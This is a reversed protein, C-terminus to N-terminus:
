PQVLTPIEVGNITSKAYDFTESNSSHTVTVDVDEDGQKVTVTYTHDQNNYIITNLVDDSAAYNYSLILSDQMSKWVDAGWNISEGSPKTPLTFTTIGTGEATTLTISGSVDKGDKDTIIITDGDATDYLGDGDIDRFTVTYDTVTGLNDTDIYRVRRVTVNSTGGSNNITVGTDSKVTYGRNANQTLTLTTNEATSVTLDNESRNLKVVTGLDPALTFSVFKGNVADGNVITPYTTGNMLGVGLAYNESVSNETYIDKIEVRDIPQLADQLSAGIDLYLLCAGTKGSVSGLAYEGKNVPIEFYYAEGRLDTAYAITGADDKPTGDAALSAHTDAIIGEPATLWSTDFVMPADVTGLLAILSEDETSYDPKGNEAQYKYIYKETTTISSKNEYIMSIERIETIKAQDDPDRTIHHLAFFSNTGPYYTGAFFNIYGDQKLNFDICDGPVQYNNITAGNIKAEPITVLSDESIIGNIFQLAYLREAELFENYVDVAGKQDGTGAYKKLTTGLSNAPIETSNTKVKEFATGNWVYVNDKDAINQTYLESVWVDFDRDPSPPNGEKIQNYMGGTIYGTNNNAPQYKNTLDEQLPIYAADNKNAVGYEYNSFKSANTTDFTMDPVDSVDTKSWALSEDGETSPTVPTVTAADSPSTSIGWRGNVYALYGSVTTVDAHLALTQNVTDYKWFLYGYAQTNISPQNPEFAYTSVSGIKTHLVSIGYAAIQPDSHPTLYWVSDTPNNSNAVSYFGSYLESGVALYDKGSHIQYYATTDAEERLSWKNEILKLYYDKSESSYCLGKEDVYSWGTTNNSYSFSISTGSVNVYLKIGGTLIFLSGSEIVWVTATDPDTGLGISPSGGGIDVNLYQGGYMIKHGSTTGSPTCVVESVMAGGSLMTFYELFRNGDSYILSYKDKNGITDSFMYGTGITDREVACYSKGDASMVKVAKHAYDSMGTSNSDRVNSINEFLKDMAISGGWNTDIGGGSSNIDETETVTPSYLDLETVNLSSEYDEECHGVLTHDSINETFSTASANNKTKLTCDNVLINQLTANVYGAAFGITTANSSNELTYGTIGTNIVKIDKKYVTNANTKETSSDETTPPTDDSITVGTLGALEDGYDGIVGFFGMVAGAENPAGGYESLLDDVAFKSSTPRKDLLSKANATTLNSIVCGNGDFSGIFPYETTGIPPVKIGTMDINNELKFYTQARGNNIEGLNFYGIYQLWALNYLHTPTTLIYPNDVSGDGSDFYTGASSGTIEADNQDIEVYSAYWALTPVILLMAILLALTPATIKKIDITKKM